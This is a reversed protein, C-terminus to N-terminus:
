KSLFIFSFLFTVLCVGPLVQQSCVLALIGFPPREWFALAGPSALAHARPSRAKGSGDASGRVLARPATPSAALGAETTSRVGAEDAEDM